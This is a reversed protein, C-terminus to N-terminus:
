HRRSATNLTELARAMERHVTAKSIGIQDAIDQYTRGVAYMAVVDHQQKPLDAMAAQIADLEQQTLVDREVSARDDCIDEPRDIAEARTIRHCGNRTLALNRAATFLYGMPSRNRDFNKATYVRVFADHALDEAAERSGVFKRLYKVLSDISEAYATVLWDDRTSVTGM